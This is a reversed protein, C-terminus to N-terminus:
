QDDTAAQPPEYPRDMPISTFLYRAWYGSWLGTSNFLTAMARQQKCDLNNNGRGVFYPSYIFLAHELHQVLNDKGVHATEKIGANLQVLEPEVIEKVQSQPYLHLIQM